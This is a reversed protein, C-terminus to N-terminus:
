KWGSSRGSDYLNKITTELTGEAELRQHVRYLELATRADEISCHAETQISRNLLRNALFKLSLFRQGSIHFLQVTDILLSQPIWLNIIRFDTHLGHGVFRCNNDVLFRLKLYISKSSVLWHMSKNVDLDGPRIGSFRTVYDKIETEDMAVYHDIFPVKNREDDTVRVVSVRGVVMDGPKGIERSGDERIEIAALGVSVFETDLAVTFEGKLIQDIESDDLAVFPYSSQKNRSLNTDSKFMDTSVLTKALHIDGLTGLLERNVYMMLVPRRWVDTTDRAEEASSPTVVFDNFLVWEENESAVSVAPSPIAAPVLSQSRSRTGTRSQNTDFDDMISVIAVHHGQATRPTPVGTASSSVHYIVSVLEGSDGFSEPIDAEDFKSPAKVIVAPSDGRFLRTILEVHEDRQVFESELVDILSEFVDEMTGTKVGPLKKWIRSVRVPQCVKNRTFRAKDMMHFLFGLECSLCIEKDCVHAKLVSKLSSVNYLCQLIPNLCDLHGQGNELGSRQCKNYIGFPFVAHNISYDVPTFKWRKPVSNKRVVEEELLVDDLELNGIRGKYPSKHETRRSMLSARAKAVITGYGTEAPIPSYSMLSGGGGQWPTLGSIVSPLIPVPPKLCPARTSFFEEEERTTALQSGWSTVWSGDRVTDTYVRTRTEVETTGPYVMNPYSPMMPQRPAILLSSASISGLPSPNIRYPYSQTASAYKAWFHVVGASDLLASVDNRISLDVVMPELDPSHPQYCDTQFIETSRLGTASPYLEGQQWAGHSGLVTLSVAGAASGAMTCPPGLQARIAGSPFSLPTSQRMNRLDFVKVFVDPSLSPGTFRKGCTVVYNAISSISCVESPHALLKSSAPRPVRGDVLTLEGHTGGVVMLPADVCSHIKSVSHGLDLISSIHGTLPDLYFLTRTIDTGVALQFDHPFQEIAALLGGGATMRALAKPSTLSHGTGGRHNFWVSSRTLSVVGEQRTLIDLIREENVSVNFRSYAGHGTGLNFLYSLLRGRQTGIWVLEEGSDLRVINAQDRTGMEQHLATGTGSDFWSPGGNDEYYEQYM